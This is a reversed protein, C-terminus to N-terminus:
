ELNQEYLQEFYKLNDPKFAHRFKYCWCNNRHEKHHIREFSCRGCMITKHVGKYHDEKEHGCKCLFDM